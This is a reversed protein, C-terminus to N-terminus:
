MVMIVKPIWTSPVAPVGDVELIMALWYPVDTVDSSYGIRAKLSNVYTPTWGGAPTAVQISKYFASTESMDGDYVTTSQADSDLIYTKGNNAAAGSSAYQLIVQVGNITTMTTDTFNIEAYSNAEIASQKILDDNATTIWPNEDLMTYATTTGPRIDTGDTFEMINAASVHTGDANPRLGIVSGAGIPYDDTTISVAIDDFYIEGTYAVQTDGIEVKNFTSATFAYSVQTQAVGDVAWDITGPNVGCNARFDIRYWVDASLAGSLQAGNGGISAQINTTATKWKFVFAGGAVPNCLFVRIGDTSISHYNFYFRGVIITPTGGINKRVGRTAASPNCQLAYDGTRKTTGQIVPTGTVTEFLGGGFTVPAALGYEFGTHWVLTAM